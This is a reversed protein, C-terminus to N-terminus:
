QIDTLFSQPVLGKDVPGILLLHRSNAFRSYLWPDGWLKPNLNVFSAECMARLVFNINDKMVSGRPLEAFACSTM